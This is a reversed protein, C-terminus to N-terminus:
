RAFIWGRSSREVHSIASAVSGMAVTEDMIAVFHVGILDAIEQGHHDITGGIVPRPPVRSTGFEHYVMKPDTFEVFVEVGRHEIIGSARMEGTEVLPSDGTRKRVITAPQLPPWGYEYTGMADQARKLFEKAGEELCAQRVVAIETSIATFRTIFQSLDM